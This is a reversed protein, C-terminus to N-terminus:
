DSRPVKHALGSKALAIFRRLIEDFLRPPLFGYAVSSSLDKGPQPRLDPGLWVFENGENLVVWSRDFDLGLRKKVIAPIEIALAMNKPPAHTIPLVTVCVDSEGAAVNLVIACPRDKIGEDYGQDHESKWLYSYRIVLGLEPDPLSV